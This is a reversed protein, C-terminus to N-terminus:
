FLTYVFADPSRSGLFLLLFFFLLVSVIPLLWYRKRNKLFDWASTM